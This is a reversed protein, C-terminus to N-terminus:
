VIPHMNRNFEVGAFPFMDTLPPCMTHNRVNKALLRYLDATRELAATMNETTDAHVGGFVSVGWGICIGGDVNKTLLIAEHINKREQTSLQSASVSYASSSSSSAVVAVAKSEIVSAAPSSLSKVKRAVQKSKSVRDKRRNARVPITSLSPNPGVSLDFGSPYLSPAEVRFDIESDICPNTVEFPTLMQRHRDHYQANMALEFLHHIRDFYWKHHYEFAKINPFWVNFHCTKKEWIINHGNRIVWEASLSRVVGSESM